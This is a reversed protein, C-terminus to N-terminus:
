KRFTEVIKLQSAKYAPVFGSFVGIGFSFFLIWLILPISITITLFAFGAKHAFYELGIGVFSGIITGLIGGLFGFLGAQFVYILLIDSNRAGIAKMIGIDKTKETIIVFMTNIIGFAGVVLSVLAIGGLTYQIVSLIENFSAMIQDMTMISVTDDGLKNELLIEVNEAALKVDYSDEVTAYIMHVINKKDYIDRLTDMNIYINKDDEPNGISELIGVIKFKTDKIYISSGVKIDRKFLDKSASPGIVMAYKETTKPFRGEAIDLNYDEFYDKSIYSGLVMRPIFEDGYKLQVIKIFHPMAERIYPKNKIFNVESDTLGKSFSLLGAGEPQIILKNTGIKEFEVDMSQEFGQSVLIILFIAFIGLSIAFFTLFSSFKRNMVDKLVLKILDLIM